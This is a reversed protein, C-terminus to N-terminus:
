KYKKVIDNLIGEAKPINGSVILEYLSSTVAAEIESVNTINEYAESILKQREFPKLNFRTYGYFAKAFYFNPDLKLIKELADDVLPSNIRFTEKPKFIDNIFIDKAEVSSTSLSIELLEKKEGECCTFVLTFTLLLFLKKM